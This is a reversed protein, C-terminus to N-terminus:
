LTKKSVGSHFKIFKGHAQCRRFIIENYSNEFLAELENVSKERKLIKLENPTLNIKLDESDAEGRTVALLYIDDAYKRL